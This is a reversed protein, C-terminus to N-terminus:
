PQRCLRVPVPVTTEKLSVTIHRKIHIKGSNLNLCGVLHRSANSVQHNGDVPNRNRTIRHLHRRGLNPVHVSKRYPESGPFPELQAEM